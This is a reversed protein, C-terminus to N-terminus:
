LPSNTGAIIKDANEEAVFLFVSQDNFTGLLFPVGAESFLYENSGYNSATLALSEYREIVVPFDRYYSGEPWEDGDPPYMIGLYGDISPVVMYPYKTGDSIYLDEGSNEASKEYVPVALEGPAWEGEIVRLIKAEVEPDIEPSLEGSDGSLAKVWRESNWWYIDGTDLELFLSNVPAFDPKDDKSTGLFEDHANVGHKQNAEVHLVTTVSM